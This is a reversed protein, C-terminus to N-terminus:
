NDENDVFHAHFKHRGPVQVLPQMVFICLGQNEKYNQELPPNIVHLYICDKILGVRLPVRFGFHHNRVSRELGPRAFSNSNQALFAELVQQLM